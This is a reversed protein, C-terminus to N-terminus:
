WVIVPEQEQCTTKLHHHVIAHILDLAVERQMTAPDHVDVADRRWDAVHGSRTRRVRHKLPNHVVNKMISRRQTQIRHIKM